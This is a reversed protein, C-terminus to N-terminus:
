ELSGSHVYGYVVYGYYNYINTNTAVHGYFWPNLATNDAYFTEGTILLGYSKYNTGPGYRVNVNELATYATSTTLAFAPISFALVIALCLFLSILKKM